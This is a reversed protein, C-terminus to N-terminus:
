FLYQTALLFIICIYMPMDITEIWFITKKFKEIDNDNNFTKLAIKQAFIKILELGILTFLAVMTNTKFQKAINSCVSHCDINNNISLNTLNM